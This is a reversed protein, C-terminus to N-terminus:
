HLTYVSDDARQASPLHSSGSKRVKNCPIAAITTIVLPMAAHTHFPQISPQNTPMISPHPLLPHSQVQLPPNKKWTGLMIQNTPRRKKERPKITMLGPPFPMAICLLDPPQISTCKKRKVHTESHSVSQTSKAPNLQNLSHTAPQPNNIGLYHIFHGNKRTLLHNTILALTIITIPADHM